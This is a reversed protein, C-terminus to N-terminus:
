GFRRRFDDPIHVSHLKAPDDPDPRVFVRLEFGEVATTDGRVVRHETRFTRTTWKSVWSHVEVAEGPYVPARFTGGSDILAGGILGTEVRVREVDYGANRWMEHSALDFWRYFNPYFVIGAPDCDGFGVRLATVFVRM